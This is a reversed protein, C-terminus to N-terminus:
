TPVGVMGISAAAPNSLPTQSTCLGANVATTSDSVPRGTLFEAIARREPDSLKEGQVRMVGDGLVNVISEPTRLRLAERNPARSEATPAAHCSACDRQFLAAGDPGQALVSTTILVLILNM